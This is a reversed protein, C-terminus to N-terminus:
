ELLRRHVLIPEIWDLRDQLDANEGYDVQLNMSSAGHLDIRFPGCLVGRRVSTRKLKEVGDVSISVDVDALSGSEDDMGFAIVLEDYNGGLGYSLSSRSHVGIGHEFTRGTVQLPGGMVNRDMMPPWDVGMLSQGSATFLDNSRAEADSLWNWRGGAIDIRVINRLDFHVREDDPTKAEIYEDAWELGAATVRETSSLTFVARLRAADKVSSKGFRCAVAVSNPIRVDGNPTDIAIGEPDLSTIFGRVIDGNAALVADEEIGDGRLFRIVRSRQAANDGASWVMRASNDLAVRVKGLMTSQIVFHESRGEVIRGIIRDGGNLDVRVEGRITTNGNGSPNNPVAEGTSGTPHAILISIIEDAKIRQTEGDVRIAVGEVLSFGVLRGSVSEPGITRVNAQIEAARTTTSAALALLCASAFGFRSHRVISFM